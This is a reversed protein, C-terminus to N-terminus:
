NSLQAIVEEPVKGLFYDEILDWFTTSDVENEFIYRLMAVSLLHRNRVNDLIVNKYRSPNNVTRELQLKSNIRIFIEPNGGGNVRYVLLGLAELLGLYIFRKEQESNFLKPYYIEYEENGMKMLMPQHFLNHTESILWETFGSYSSGLIHYKKRSENFGIFRSYFNTNQKMLRDFAVASNLIIETLMQAAYRKINTSRQLEKSFDEMSFYEKSVAYRGLISNLKDVWYKVQDIFQNKTPVKLNLQVQLVPYILGRFPLNVKPEKSHFYYKFQPFSLNSYYKQWIKKLDVQYISKEGQETNIRTKLTFSDKFNPFIMKEAEIPVVFYESAFVNRPRAVIPSYKLKAQFDKEIILLATKVKNDIEEERDGNEFIYRFEDSSVLLNRVNSANNQSLLNLIKQMVQVLQNKKITSIGHLRQVHVFDQPLFDFFAHGQELARAARGIEQVYDCVNGTPAFHYVNQIDPIDIGMGFAKTALMLTADNKKYRLYNEQKIEKDLSGYYVTLNSKLTETGYSQTFEKFDLISKVTPFYVLTKEKKNVFKELRLLLIKNKDSLYENFKKDYDIKHHIHIDLDDRRVYGFYSIPSILNLSDRTEVYMDEVGGYIATATFTAVPFKMERRLKSLYTGLYWYDSRFAKGWTTVIHAEDIVFLGVKREGILQSIDSRSLLTEPSIYLISVRGDKIRQQIEMKEVPSIASNITASMEVQNAQLGQVQDNMLGILPSIIITMLQYQEALYIAPVQFMVSKGAGTSSTVFIDRYDEGERAKSAERVIDDVIQGQSIEITTKDGTRYKINKYMKLKRFSTYGWYRRLVDIYPKDDITSKIETLKAVLRIQYQESVLSQLANLRPLYRFPMADIDGSVAISVDGEPLYENKLQHILQLYDDENESLEMYIDSSPSIRLENINGEEYYYPIMSNENEQYVVYNRDAITKVAGYIQLLKYTEPYDVDDDEIMDESLDLLTHKPADFSYLAPYTNDYLNNNITIVTYYLEIINKGIVLAEETTCWYFPSEKSTAFLQPILNAKLDILKEVSITLSVDLLKYESIQTLFPLDFGRFIILISKHEYFPQIKEKLLSVINM